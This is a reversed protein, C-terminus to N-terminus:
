CSSGGETYTVSGAGSVGSVNCEYNVVAKNGFILSKCSYTATSNPSCDLYSSQGLLASGSYILIRVSITYDFNNDITFTTYKEKTTRQWFDWTPNVLFSGDMSKHTATYTPTFTATGTVTGSPTPSWGAFSYDYYTSAPRWPGSTLVPMNEGWYRYYTSYNTGDWYKYYITYGNRSGTALEVTSPSDAIWNTEENAGGEYFTFNATVNGTVGNTGTYNGSDASRDYRYRTQNRALHYTYTTNFSLGGDDYTSGSSGLWTLWTWEGTWRYLNGAVNSRSTLRMTASTADGTVMSGTPVALDSPQCDWGTYRSSNASSSGSLVDGYYITAGSSLSGTSAGALPSSTRSVSYSGYDSGTVSITLTYSTVSANGLSISATLNDKNMTWYTTNLTTSGTKNNYGTNGTGKYYITAGYDASTIVTTRSSNSYFTVSGNTYSGSLSYNNTARSDTPTYTKNAYIPSSVSPWSSVSYSYQYSRATNTYTSSGRASGNDWRYITYTSGSRSITDGYEVTMSGTSWSGYTGNSFTITYTKRSRGTTATITQDDTVPSSISSYSLTYDYGADSGNTFTNTWRSTSTSGQYCTVTNGSRSINDGYYATKSSSGWSGYSGSRSFSITYHMLYDASCSNAGPQAFVYKYTTNNNDFCHGTSATWLIEDNSSYWGTGTTASCNTGNLSTVNVYLANKDYTGASDIAQSLTVTSGDSSFACNTNATWTVSTGKTIWGTSYDCSCRTCGITCYYQITRARTTINFTSDARVNAYSGSTDGSFIYKTTGDEYTTDYSVLEWYLTDDYEHQISVSSGAESWTGSAGAKARLTSIYDGHTFTSTYYRTATSQVRNLTVSLASSNTITGSTDGTYTYITTNDQWNQQYGVLEWSIIDEYLHTITVEGLAESWSGTNLKAKLTNVYDGAYITTTYYVRSRTQKVEVRGGDNESTYQGSFNYHTYNWYVDDQNYEYAEIQLVSDSDIDTIVTDEDIVVYEGNDISYRVSSVYDGILITFSWGSKWAPTEGNLSIAKVEKLTTVGEVTIPIMLKKVQSFDM